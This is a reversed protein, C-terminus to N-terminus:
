ITGDIQMFQGNFPQSVVVPFSPDDDPVSVGGTNAIQTGGSSSATMTITAGGKIPIELDYDVAMVYEGGDGHNLYYTAPPNSIQLAYVNHAGPTHGTANKIVRGSTGVPTGGTYVTPEVVARVRIQLLYDVGEKGGIGYVQPAPDSCSCVGGGSLCPLQWSLGAFGPEGCAISNMSSVPIPFSIPLPATRTAKFTRFVAQCESLNDIGGHHTIEFDDQDFRAVDAFSIRRVQGPSLALGLPADLNLRETASTSGPLVSTVKRLITGGDHKIAIYERGSTPGGTYRYGVNEVVIQTAGSTASNVLRLDSKFTPLWFSGARGRHRYILDRFEALKQRGPLFWRHSQGLTARGTLDVQYLRGLDNDLRVTDRDYTVDLADVWNPEDLFVPRGAYLPSGDVAPTWPSSASLAFRVSVASVGATLHSPTGMDDIFARRLPILKSGVPWSRATEVAIDAGGADLGIIEVVEYDLATKGTLIALGESFERYSNDFDLRLTTGGIVANTISAIDWYLPVMMEGGGLRNLFLDYFTREPGSLLFDAEITRRPTPRLSRRQEAGEQARLVDTLFELRESIGDRWNARFSWVPLDSDAM